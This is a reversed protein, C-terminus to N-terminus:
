RHNKIPWIRLPLQLSRVNLLHFGDMDIARVIDTYGRGNYCGIGGGGGCPVAVPLIRSTCSFLQLASSCDHKM